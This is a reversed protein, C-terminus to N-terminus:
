YEVILNYSLLICMRHLKPLPLPLRCDEPLALAIKPFRLDSYLLTPLLVLCIHLQIPILRIFILLERLALLFFASFKDRGIYFGEYLVVM